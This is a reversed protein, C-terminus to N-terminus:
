DLRLRERLAPDAIALPREDPVLLAEPTALHRQQTQVQGTIDEIRLPWSLAYDRLTEGRLGLQIARRELPNGRPGHDPDWQLRVDSAAVAASWAESTAHLHAQWTSHVAMGLLDLFRALPLHVALVREQDPKGAWGSRHMMWLFNPKIWSMRTLSFPADFRQRAVAVKAIQPRYAQYVVIADATFTALIHRGQRPWTAAVERYPSWRIEM